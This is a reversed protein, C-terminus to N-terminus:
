GPDGSWQQTSGKAELRAAVFLPRSSMNTVGLDVEIGTPSRLVIPQSASVLQTTHCGSLFPTGCLLLVVFAPAKILRFTDQAPHASNNRSFMALCSLIGALNITPSLRGESRSPRGATVPHLAHNSPIM